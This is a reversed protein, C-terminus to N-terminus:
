HLILTSCFLFFFLLIYQSGIVNKLDYREGDGVPLRVKRIPSAGTPRAKTRGVMM